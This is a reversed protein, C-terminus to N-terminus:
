EPPPTPLRSEEKTREMGTVEDEKVEAPEVVEVAELSPLPVAASVQGLRPSNPPSILATVPPPVLVPELAVASSSTSSFTSLTSSTPSSAATSPASSETDTTEWATSPTSPAAEGEAAKDEQAGQGDARGDGVPQEETVRKKKRRKKEGGEGRGSKKEERRRGKAIAERWVRAGEVGSKVQVEEMVRWMEDKVEERVRREEERGALPDASSSSSPRSLLPQLELAQLTATEVEALHALQALRTLLPKLKEADALAAALAAEGEPVAGSSSSSSPSSHPTPFLLPALQSMALSTSIFLQRLLSIHEYTLRSPFIVSFTPSPTPRLLLHFELSLSLFLALYRWFNYRRESKRFFTFVVISLMASAWFVASHMAGTKIFERNTVLKGGGWATVGPGFREYAWRKGEDQLVDVGKKLEVFLAEGGSGVKDPHYVRALKKWHKKVVSAGGTGVVERSLGLRTYYSASALSAQARYVSAVSYVLYSSLLLVRARRHHTQARANAASRQPPSANPSIVPRLSPLLRYFLALLVDTLLSPLFTWCAISYLHSSLGGGGSSSGSM